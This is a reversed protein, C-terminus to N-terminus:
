DPAGKPLGDEQVRLQPGAAPDHRRGPASGTQHRLALLDRPADHLGVRHYKKMAM